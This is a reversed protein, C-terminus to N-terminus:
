LNVDLGKIFANADEVNDFRRNKKYYIYDRGFLSPEWAGEIEWGDRNLHNIIASLRTCHNKLADNRSVQGNQILQQKAWEMQSLKEKM